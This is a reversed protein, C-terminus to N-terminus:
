RLIPAYKAGFMGYTWFDNQVCGISNRPSTPWTSGQKPRNPPPTLTPALCSSPKHRVYCLSLFQKPHMRHFLYTIDAMQFRTETRKSITSIKFCSLHVTQALRVVPKSFWKPHVQDFQWIVHTIHFRRKTQKSVTNPETCSLHVTRALCLM